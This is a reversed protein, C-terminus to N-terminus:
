ADYKQGLQYNLVYIDEGFGFPIGVIRHLRDVVADIITDRGPWAGFSTRADDVIDDESASLVHSREMKEKAVTIIHRVEDPTIFSRFVVVRPKDFSM